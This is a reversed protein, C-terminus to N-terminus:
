GQVNWEEARLADPWDIGRELGPEDAHESFSVAGAEVLRRVFKM